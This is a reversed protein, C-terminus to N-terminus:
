AHAELEFARDLQLRWVEFAGEHDLRDDLPTVGRHRATDKTSADFTRWVFLSSRLAFLLSCLALLMSGIANM